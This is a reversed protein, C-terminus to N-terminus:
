AEALLGAVLGAPPANSSGTAAAATRRGAGVDNGYGFHISIPSAGPWVHERSSRSCAASSRRAARPTRAGRRARHNGCSSFTSRMATRRLRDPGADPSLMSRSRALTPIRNRNASAPRSAVSSSTAVSSPSWGVDVPLAVQAAPWRATGAVDLAVRAWWPAPRHHGRHSGAPRARPRVCPAPPPTPSGGRALVRPASGSWCGAPEADRGTALRGVVPHCRPSAPSSACGRLLISPPRSTPAAIWSPWM